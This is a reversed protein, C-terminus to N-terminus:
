RSSSAPSAVSRRAASRSRACAACAACGCSRTAANRDASDSHREQGSDSRAPMAQNAPWASRM